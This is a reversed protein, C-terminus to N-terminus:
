TNFSSNLTLCEFHESDNSHRTKRQRLLLDSDNTRNRELYLFLSFLHILAVNADMENVLKRDEERTEQIFWRRHHHHHAVWKWKRGNCKQHLIFFFVSSHLHAMFLNLLSQVSAARKKSSRNIGWRMICGTMQIHANLLVMLLYESHVTFQAYNLEFSALSAHRWMTCCDSIFCDDM